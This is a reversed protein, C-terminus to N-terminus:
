EFVYIDFSSAASYLFEYGSVSNNLELVSNLCAETDCKRDIFVILKGAAALEPDSLADCNQANEFYVRDYRLYDQIRADYDGDDRNYVLVAADPNAMEWEEVVAEDPYLYLVQGQAYAGILMVIVTIVTLLYPVEIGRAAMGTLAPISAALRAYTFRCICIFLVLMIGYIPYQYRNSADSARLGIKTVVAFYCVCSLILLIHGGVQVLKDSCEGTLVAKYHWFGSIVFVLGAAAIVMALIFLGGFLGKSLLGVFLSVRAFLVELSPNVLDEVSGTGRYGKFIHFVSTPWVLYTAILSALVTLGIIVADKFRRRLIFLYSCYFFTMFFMFIVFYYQTMFGCFGAAFLPLLTRVPSIKERKFDCVLTLSFIIAFLSFLLYMRILMVGSLIAPSVTYAITAIATLLRDKNTLRFALERILLICPIFLLINVSIGIWKSFVGPVLMACLHILIYYAAPHVNNATNTFLQAFTDGEDYSVQHIYATTDNWQGNVVSIGEGVGLADTMTYYEDVYYGKKMGAFFVCLCVGLVVTLITILDYKKQTMFSEKLDIGNGSKSRM